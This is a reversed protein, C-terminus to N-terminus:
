PIEAESPTSPVTKTVPPPTGTWPTPLVGSTAALVVGTSAAAAVVLTAKVTLVRRVWPRRRSPEARIFATVAANEGTLEEDRAPASAARVLPALPGALLQDTERDRRSGTRRM